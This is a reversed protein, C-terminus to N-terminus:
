RNETLFRVQFQITRARFLVSYKAVGSISIMVDGTIYQPLILLDGTVYNVGRGYRYETFPQGGITVTIDEPMMYGEEASFTAFIGSEMMDTDDFNVTVNTSNFTVNPITSASACLPFAVTFVILCILVAFVRKKM